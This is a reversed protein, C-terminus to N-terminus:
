LYVVGLAALMGERVKERPIKRGEMLAYVLSPMVGASGGTPATIVLHGRANEESAAIACASLLGVGRDGANEEKMARNYVTAAKSHLKIPGPLVDDESVALGSKVTALMANIIKDIFANVEAESRGMISMENALMIQGISMKNNDAHARLEKMTEFPYKPANKKPPTYGKWEIFGGGVSYYEQELLVDSGGLLKVTMTNQHPFDGKTADYIVDKLSVDISKDGLKVPFVQDPKDRLSDLFLPDVTAPEKGILGALAARETGHGKGTASLSGFLNVQLKTAKALKDAPLKAARQYFDYTIRMPGITHSSSPGPGVKYFEDVTTLVPGKEKKVVNLDPSLPPASSPEPPTTAVAKATQGEPSAACGSMVAAAGGVATRMLFGRRNLGRPVEVDILSRTDALPDGPAETSGPASSVAHSSTEDGNNSM